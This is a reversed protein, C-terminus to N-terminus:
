EKAWRRCSCTSTSATYSSSTSGPVAEDEACYVKKDHRPATFDFWDNGIIGTHEPRFGTLITSHGPCTETDAHGQYASPFVVGDLLRKFGGRSVTAIM